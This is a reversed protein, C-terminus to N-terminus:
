LLCLFFFSYPIFVDIFVQVIHLDQSCANSLIFLICLSTVILILLIANVRIHVKLIVGLIENDVDDEGYGLILAM